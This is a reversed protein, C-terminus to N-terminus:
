INKLKQGYFQAKSKLIFWLYKKFIICVILADRLRDLLMVIFFFGIKPTIKIGLPAYLGAASLLLIM